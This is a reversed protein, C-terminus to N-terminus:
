GPDTLEPDYSRVLAPHLPYARSAASWLAECASASPSFSAHFPGTCQRLLPSPGTGRRQLPSPGTGRRLLPSPGTGHRLLPSPRPLSGDSCDSWRGPWAASMWLARRKAFRLLRARPRALRAKRQTRTHAAQRRACPAGTGTAPTHRTQKNAQAAAHSLHQRHAVAAAFQRLHPPHSM